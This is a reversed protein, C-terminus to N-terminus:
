FRFTSALFSASLLTCKQKSAKIDEPPPTTYSLLEADSFRSQLREVFAARDEGPKGRYIFTKNRMNSGYGGWFGVFFYDPFFPETEAMKSALSAWRQLLDALKEYDYM